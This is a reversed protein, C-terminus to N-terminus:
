KGLRRALDAVEVQTELKGVWRWPWASPGWQVGLLGGAIAGTTDADHGLNVLDILTDEATEPQQIAWVACRLSDIVYGSTPLASVHTKPDVWLAYYVEHDLDYTLENMLKRVRLVASRGTHGALLYAVLEGYVQCAQVCREDAHTIESIRRAMVLRRLRDTEMLGIPLTRMLSGNGAGGGATRKLAKFGSSRPDGDQRLTRLATSTLGGIDSPGAKLWALLGRGVRGVIDGGQAYARAVILTQDTDDTPQGARWQLVGGGIMERHVGYKAQIAKAGMFETTAGLADGVAVGLLGGLVRDHRTLTTVTKM